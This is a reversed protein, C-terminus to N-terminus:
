GHKGRSQAITSGISRHQKRRLQASLVQSFATILFLIMSSFFLQSYNAGDMQALMSMTLVEWSTSPLFAVTSLSSLVTLFSLGTARIVSVYLNPILIQSQQWAEHVGLTSSVEWWLPNIRRLDIEIISIALNLCRLAYAVVIVVAGQGWSTGGVLAPFLQFGGWRWPKAFACLLGFALVSSPLQLALRTVRYFMRPLMRQPRTLSLGLALVAILPVALTALLFSNGLPDVLSSFSLLSMDPSTAWRGLTHFAVICLTFTMLWGIISQLAAIAALFWAVPRLPVLYSRWSQSSFWGSSYLAAMPPTRSYTVAIVGLSFVALVLAYVSATGLSNASVAQSYLAATLVRYKGGLVLPTALDAASEVMLILFAQGLPQRIAPFIVYRLIQTNSVGLSTVGTLLHPNVTRIATLIILYATPTFSIIQCLAIGVFGYLDFGFLFYGSFLFGSRGISVILIVPIIFPGLLSPFILGKHWWTKGALPLVTIAFATLTGLVTGITAVTLALSITNLVLEHGSKSVIMDALAALGEPSLAQSLLFLLPLCTAILGTGISINTWSRLWSSLRFSTTDSIKM